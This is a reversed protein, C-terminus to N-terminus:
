TIITMANIHYNGMFLLTKYDAWLLFLVTGEVITFM